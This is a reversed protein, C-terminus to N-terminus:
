PRGGSEVGDLLGRVERPHAALAAALQSLPRGLGHGLLFVREVFADTVEFASGVDRLFGGEVLLAFGRALNAFPNLLLPGLERHSDCARLFFDALEAKAIPRWRDADTARAAREAEAKRFAGVFQERPRIRWPPLSELLSM